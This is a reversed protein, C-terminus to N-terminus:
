LNRIVHMTAIAGFGCWGPMQIYAQLHWIGDVDIDGATTTYKISNTGDLSAPWTIRVGLPNRAVINMVNASSLDRGCDLVIETGVDGVFLSTM